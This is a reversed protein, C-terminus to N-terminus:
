KIIQKGSKDGHIIKKFSITNERYLIYLIFVAILLSKVIDGIFSINSLAFYGLAFIILAVIIYEAIRGIKYDIKFYKRGIFYSLVMMVFYATVHGISSAMYSYKRVFLVNIVITIIAGSLTLVAGYITKKKLKYWISLNFFIGYFIYAVIIIPVIRLGEHFKPDIFFKIYKLYFMIIFSLVLLAAIFFRMIKSFVEKDDKMKYYNFYFPEAAYRFMQIFLLLLIAIKYNAGYIGLEYNAVEKDTILHKILLRDLTENVTGALGAVLLPLSYILIEKILKRNFVYHVKLLETSLLILVVSSAILNSVLVYSVDDRLNFNIGIQYKKIAWPLIEYFFVVCLITVIVNIIKIVSFKVSREELRLKAFPITSFADIAIIIGLMSIFEVNGSYDLLQAINRRFVLVGTIFLVSTTFLSVIVSSYVNQNNRPKAFRFYGTEMGYTLIILLFTVYAYLETLVGFQEVSFLRTYYVTLITYNLLRPIITGMGYIFTQGALKKYIKM